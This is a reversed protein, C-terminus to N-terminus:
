GAFQEKVADVVAQALADTDEQQVPTEAYVRVVDETGSPRVFSRSTSPFKAVIADIREQLGAPSCVRREADATKVANRDPVQCKMLRNPFDKYLADWQECDWGFHMLATEVLLMDSLADGVTQNILDMTALLKKAALKQEETADTSQSRKLITAATCDNFIVTGHGNAEFYVGIDFEEARRHLHKVGTPVCAVPVGLQETMFLTSSGNAYATQVVGINVSDLGAKNLLDKLYKAVLSSIRDGDLLHFNGAADFYFYVIRDADGDYAAHRRGPTADANRPSSQTTKVYDAGCGENLVDGKKDGDNIITIELLAPDIRKAFQLAVRAGVGNAGDVVLKPIYTSAVDSPSPL